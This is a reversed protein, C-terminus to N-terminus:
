VDIADAFEPLTKIYEYCQKIDNPADDAVSPVFTYHEQKLIAKGESPAQNNIYYNLSFTLEEKNDGNRNGVRAYASEVEIGSELVVRMQIAM